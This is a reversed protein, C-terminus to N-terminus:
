RGVGFQRAVDALLRPGGVNGPVVALPVHRGAGLPLEWLAVGPAVQGGVRAVTAGMAHRAVHASTIGGKAILGDCMAGVGAVSGVLMAMVRAGLAPDGADDARTRGTSVIAFGHRALDSALRKGARDIQRASPLSGPSSWEPSLEVPETGTEQALHQLQDTSAATYSGCVALVRGPAPVAVNRIKRGVLGARIAAFTSASRVVVDRGAQEAEALGRAAVVLDAQTEAEPIVVSRSPATILADRIAAHGTTRVTALPVITAFRGGGVEAVWADLTRSRYGFVLDHAFETESVPVKRSGGIELWQVRDVTTRGGEPFAPVFFVVSDAGGIADAEAFVHGRLTSDGRLVFAVSEGMRAAAARVGLEIERVHRIAADEDLARTNSLVYTARASSAFFRDYAQAEPALIVDVGSVTQTGTPDDDIIM